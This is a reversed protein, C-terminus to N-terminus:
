EDPGTREGTAAGSSGGTVSPGLEKRFDLTKYVGKTSPLEGMSLSLSLSAPEFIMSQVSIVGQNVQDLANKLRERDIRGRYTRCIRDLTRYRRCSPPNKREARHHNTAFVVGKEPLRVKFLGPGIEALADAGSTDLLIVNNAAVRPTDKLIRLGEEVSGAEEMVRRFLFVSPMGRFDREGTRVEMVACCLGKENMGSLVGILGPWTVSIFANRGEPRFVIVMGSKDLVGLPFFDLNRALLPAGNKSAPGTVAVTSCGGGRYVDPFASGTLVMVYDQRSSRALAKMEERFREPIFPDMKRAYNKLREIGGSLLSAPKMYNDALARCEKGLLVGHAEGMAEPSGELLLVPIGSVIELKSGKCTGPKFQITEGAPCATTQLLLLWAVVPLVLHSIRPKKM